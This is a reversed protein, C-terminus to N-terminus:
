KPANPSGMIQLVQNTVEMGLYELLAQHIGSDIYKQLTELYERYQPVDEECDMVSSVPAPEEEEDTAALAVIRQLYTPGVIHELKQMDELFQLHAKVRQIQPCQHHLQQGMKQLQLVTRLKQTNDVSEFLIRRSLCTTKEGKELSEASFLDRGMRFSIILSPKNKQSNPILSSFDSEPECVEFYKSTYGLVAARTEDKLSVPPLAALANGLLFFSCVFYLIQKIM